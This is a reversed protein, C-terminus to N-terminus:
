DGRIKSLQSEAKEIDELLEEFNYHGGLSRKGLSILNAERWEIGLLHILTIQAGRNEPPCQWDWTTEGEFLAKLEQIIEDRNM